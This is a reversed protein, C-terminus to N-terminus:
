RTMVLAKRGVWGIVADEFTRFGALHVIDDAAISMQQLQFM